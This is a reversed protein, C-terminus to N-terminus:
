DSVLPSEAEVPFTGSSGGLGADHVAYQGVRFVIPLSWPHKKALREPFSPPLANKGAPGVARAAEDELGVSIFDTVIFRPSAEFLAAEFQPTKKPFFAYLSDVYVFRTPPLVDLERYLHIINDNYCLVDGDSVNRERLFQAILELDEWNPDLLLRLRDRVQPSSGQAFCERWTQLRGSRFIPTSLLALFMFAVVGVRWYRPRYVAMSSNALVVVALVVGPAHVYDFLHQLLFAQAMWALYCTSLIAQRLDPDLVAAHLVTNRRRWGIVVARVAVPVAFVHLLLWPFLRYGMALFRMGTWHEKGAAFYIPNWEVFTEIFYPWAGSHVLWAVGAAGVTLGGALLGTADALNRRLDRRVAVSALWCAAAPPIIMPKIWVGTGWCVGEVFAWLVISNTHPAGAIRTVQRARLTMGAMLVALMWMDRQCHNWESISFYYFCVISGVILAAAASRGAKRSWSSAALMVGAFVIFDFLRIAESSTGLISRVVAHIWIVGPLNPELFDRYLVGGELMHLAQIDYFAVDNIVPMCLFLPVNTLLIVALLAGALATPISLEFRFSSAANKPLQGSKRTKRITAATM